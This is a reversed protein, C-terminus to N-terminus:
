AITPFTHADFYITQSQVNEQHLIRMYAATMENPDPELKSQVDVVFASSVASFLGAQIGM